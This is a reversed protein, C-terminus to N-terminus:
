GIVSNAETAVQQIEEELQKRYKDGDPLSEIALKLDEIAEIDGLETRARFRVYLFTAYYHTARVQDIGKDIALIAEQARGMGILAQAKRHWWHAERKVEPVLELIRDANDYEELLIYAEGYQTLQYPNPDIVEVYHDIASRLLDRKKRDDNHVIKAASKLSQAWDFRDSNTNAVVDRWEIADYMQSVLEPMTYWTKQAVTAMLRLALAYDIERAETLCSIILKEYPQLSNSKGIKALLHLSELVISIPVSATVDQHQTIIHSCQDIAEDKNGLKNFIRALQLRAASFNPNENLITCFERKAEETKDLRFLMKAYHHRILLQLSDKAAPSSKMLELAKINAQISQKAAAVGSSRLIITYLAEIAEIIARVEIERETWSPSRRILEETKAIQDGFLEIPLQEDRVLAAMYVFSPRADSSLLRRVLTSHFNAIRRIINSDNQYQTKVYQDLKNCFDANHRSSIEIVGKIAQFVIDHVRIYGASSAAIFGRKMLNGIALQHVCISCLEPYFRASNCWKVFQLEVSLAEKHQELIRHCVKMHKEDEIAIIADVCCRDVEDWGHRLALSNLLNLLLPYGGICGFVRSFIDDPCPQPAENELISRAASEDLNELIIANPDSSTQCTVIIKSLGCNFDNLQEWPIKSDDLILLCKHRKLLGVINHRTGTRRIDVDYLTRINDLYYADIWIYLDFDRDLKAIQTALASKGIGSIGSITVWSHEKLHDVIAQELEKRPQYNPYSPISHSFANEDALRGVSPLYNLLDGILREVELNDFIYQAIKRADCIDIKHVDQNCKLYQTIFNACKTTEGASAERSSLLWIYKADPHLFRAHQLDRKPKKMTSNFYDEESSMEAVLSAGESSCDVTYGRPAGDVTTGRETWQAPHIINMIRYGFQEFRGGSLLKIEEILSDIVKRRFSDSM